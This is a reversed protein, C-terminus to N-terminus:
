APARGADMEPLHALNQALAILDRAIPGTLKSTTLMSSAGGCNLAMVRRGNGAVVPVGIANIEPHYTKENLVFGDQRCSRVIAEIRTRLPKADARDACLAALIADREATGAGALYAWGLASNEIALVSGVHLNLRLVTPAEARQVIVMHLNEREALSVAGGSREAIEKMAPFAAEAIGSQTLCAQGLTLTGLGIRLKEPNRGPALCGLRTLTHCLRWVSSQPLGTLAAIETTGLEMREPTFCRLITLGRALAAVFQRDERM